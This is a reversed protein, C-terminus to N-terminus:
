RGRRARAVPRVRGVPAMRVPRVPRMRTVPRVPRAQRVPRVQRLPFQRMRQRAAAVRAQRLAQIQRTAYMPRLPRLPSFPRVPGFPHQQRFPHLPRFPHLRRFPHLPRGRWTRQLLAQNYPTPAIFAGGQHRGRVIGFGRLIERIRQVTKPRERAPLGNTWFQRLREKLWPDTGLVGRQRLLDWLQKVNPDRAQIGERAIGRMLDRLWTNTTPAPMAQGMSPM